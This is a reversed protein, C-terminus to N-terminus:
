EPSMKEFCPHLKGHIGYYICIDKLPQLRKTVEGDLYSNGSHFDGLHLLKDYYHDMMSVSGGSYKEFREPNIMSQLEQENKPRPTSEVFLPSKTTQTYFYCRKAGIEGLAELRDAYRAYLYEPHDIAEKPITNHNKSCSVFSILMTIFDIQENTINNNSSLKLIKQANPLEEEKSSKSFFKGDDADHLLGALMILIEKEESLRPIHVKLAQDVHNMVDKAHQLGHSQCIEDVVVKLHKCANEVIALRSLGWLAM